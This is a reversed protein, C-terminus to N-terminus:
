TPACGSRHVVCAIRIVATEVGRLFVARLRGLRTAIRQAVADAAAGFLGGSRRHRRRAIDVLRRLRNGLHALRFRLCLRLGRRELHGAAFVRRFTGRRGSGGRETFCRRARGFRGGRGLGALHGLWRLFGLCDPLVRALRDADHEFDRTGTRLDRDVELPQVFTGVIGIRRDSHGALDARLDLDAHAVAPQEGAHAVLALVALRPRDEGIDVEEAFAGFFLEGAFEM